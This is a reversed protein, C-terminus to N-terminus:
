RGSGYKKRLDRYVKEITKRHVRELKPYIVLAAALMPKYDETGQYEDHLYLSYDSLSDFSLSSTQRIREWGGILEIDSISKTLGERLTVHGLPLNLGVSGTGHSTAGVEETALADEAWDTLEGYQDFPLVFKGDVGEGPEPANLMITGEELQRHIDPYKLAVRKIQVLVAQAAAAAKINSIDAVVTNVPLLLCLLVVFQRM